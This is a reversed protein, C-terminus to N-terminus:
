PQAETVREILDVIAQIAEQREADQPILHGSRILNPLM